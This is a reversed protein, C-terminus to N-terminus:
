DTVAFAEADLFRTTSPNDNIGPGSPGTFVCEILPRFVGAGEMTSLGHSKTITGLCARALVGASCGALLGASCERQPWPM